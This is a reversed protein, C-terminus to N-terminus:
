NVLWKSEWNLRTPTLRLWYERLEHYPVKYGITQLCKVSFYAAALTDVSMGRAM